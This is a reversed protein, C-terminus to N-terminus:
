GLKVSKVVKSIGSKEGEYSKGMGGKYTAKQSAMKKNAKEFRMRKKVRPNRITNSRSPTLGRNNLISSTLSRPKGNTLRLLTLMRYFMILTIVCSEIFGTQRSAEYDDKKKQKRAKSSSNILDYYGEGEEGGDESGGESEDGDRKRKEGLAVGVGSDLRAKKEQDTETETNKTRKKADKYPIDDDGGGRSERGENRRKAATQIKATYFQLSKKRAQKDSADASSLSLPDGYADSPTSTHTSKKPKSSSSPFSPEVLDFTIKKKDKKNKKEKEVSKLDRAIEKKMAEFEEEDFELEEEDENPFVEMGRDETDLYEAGIEEEDSDFGFGEDDDGDLRRHEMELDWLKQMDGEDDTEDDESDDFELEELIVLSKKLTLLRELVEDKSSAM